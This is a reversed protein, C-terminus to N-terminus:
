IRQLFMHILKRRPRRQENIHIIHMICVNDYHPIKFQLIINVGCIAFLASAHHTIIMNLSDVTVIILISVTSCWVSHAYIPYFHEENKVFYYLSFIEERVRTANLPIIIDLMPNVLPLSVFLVLFSLLAGTFHCTTVSRSINRM